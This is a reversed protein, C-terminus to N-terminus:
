KRKKKPSKRALVYGQEYGDGYDDVTCVGDEDILNEFADDLSDEDYVDEVLERLESEKQVLRNNLLGKLITSTLEPKEFELNVDIKMKKSPKVGPCGHLVAFNELWAQADDYGAAEAMDTHDAGYEPKHGMAKCFAKIEAKTFKHMWIVKRHRGAVKDTQEVLDGWVEVRCMVPGRNYSLADTVIESAHMGRYCCEPTEYDPISLTKGVAVKRGDSYSLKGDEPLFHWGLRLDPRAPDTQKKTAM